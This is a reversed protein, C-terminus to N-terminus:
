ENQPESPEICKPCEQPRKVEGYDGTLERVDSEPYTVSCGLPKLFLDSAPSQSIRKCRLEVRKNRQDTLVAYGVSILSANRELFAIDEKHGRELWGPREERRSINKWEILALPKCTRWVTADVHPWVVIDANREPKAAANREPKAADSEPLKQVPVEIGIQRIDLAESQFRPVLQGFVFLNVVERERVYWPCGALDPLLSELAARFLREFSDTPNPLDRFQKFPNM